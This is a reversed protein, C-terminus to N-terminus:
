PRDAWRLEWKVKSSPRMARRGPRSLAWSGAQTVGVRRWDAAAYVTGSHGCALDSYAILRRVGPFRARVLRAAVGLVRSESNRGCEPALVMRTLELTSVQDENRATPRGLMLAGVMRGAAFVGLFLRGGCPAYGLYHHEAVFARCVAFPVDM